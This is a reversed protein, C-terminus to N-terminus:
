ELVIKENKLGAATLENAPAATPHYLEAVSNLHLNGLHVSEFFLDVETHRFQAPSRGLTLRSALPDLWFAFRLISSLSISRTAPSSLVKGHHHM